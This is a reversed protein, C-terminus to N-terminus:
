LAEALQLLSRRAQAREADTLTEVGDTYRAQEYLSALALATETTAPAQARWQRAVAHHNWSQVGLGLTLLALYDFAQVLDARTTVAEPRVPWPGFVARADAVAATRKGLRLLQWVIFLCFVALLVWTGSKGVAPLGSGGGPLSPAALDPTPLNGVASLSPTWAKFDPTPLGRLRDLTGEGLNGMMGDPVKINDQWDGLKFRAADPNGISSRLDDFARNWAPSERLWDGLGTNEARKMARETVKALPDAKPEPPAIKVKPVEAAKSTPPKPTELIKKLAAHFKKMEVPQQGPPNKKIWDKLANRLQPDNAAWDRLAKKFDDDLKFNKLTAPDFPMKSPDAAIKKIFDKLPGLQQEMQLREKFLKEFEPAIEFKKYQRPEEQACMPVAIRLLVVSAVLCQSLSRTKMASDMEENPREVRETYFSFLPM